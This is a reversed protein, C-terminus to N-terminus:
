RFTSVLKGLLVDGVATLDPMYVDKPAVYFGEPLEDPEEGEANWQEKSVGCVIAIWSSDPLLRPGEWELDDELEDTEDPQSDIRRDFDFYTATASNQRPTKLRPTPPFTRLAPPSAPTQLPKSAPPAGPIWIHSPTALRPSIAQMHLPTASRPCRLDMDPLPQPPPVQPSPGHIIPSPHVNTLTDTEDNDSSSTNASTSSQDIVDSGVAIGLGIGNPQLKLQSPIKLKPSSITIVETSSEKLSSRSLSSIISDHQSPSQSQLAVDLEVRDEKSSSSPPMDLTTSLHSHPTHNQSNVLSTSRERNDNRSSARSGHRSTSRSSNRSPRHFVQGGFSVILVKLNTSEPHDHSGLSALVSDPVGISALFKARGDLTYVDPSTPSRVLLPTPIVQRTRRPSSMRSHRHVVSPPIPVPPYLPYKSHESVEANDRSENLTLTDELYDLVEKELTGTRPDVWNSAPLPPYM